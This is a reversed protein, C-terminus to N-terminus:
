RPVLPRPLAQEAVICAGGVVAMLAMVAYAGAGFNGYLLGSAVSAAAMAAGSVVAFYGQARAAQGEPALRAILALTGLHTAGFSAGHLLQLVPLAIAPPDFAMATWRLAGGCAGILLLATPTVFVPLRAQCAFLVIEAIVGLAWLAAIATGDLGAAHWALASFGYFAAHSAQILSAAVVVTIFARERLLHPRPAAAVRGGPTRELPVILLASAATLAAAAVILWILNRPDIRDAAAGAALTGLIFAASGWLRVPGYARGRSALGKLAYADTLPMLPTYFFSALAYAAFISAASAVSGLLVYCLVSLVAAGILTGRLAGRRDALGAAVPVAAFRVLMPVALLLGIAGPDFGKAKLWIPFFPLQVGSMMFYAAYLAALRAVFGPISRFEYM